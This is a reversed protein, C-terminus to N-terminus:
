PHSNEHGEDNDSGDVIDEFFSHNQQKVKRPYCLSVLLVASQIYKEMLHSFVRNDVNVHFNLDNFKFSYLLLGDENAIQFNKKSSPHNNLMNALDGLALNGTGVQFLAAVMHRIQNYLFSTGKIKFYHFNKDMRRVEFKLITRRFCTSNKRKKCFNSFDHEGVFLKCGQKIRDFNYNKDIFFYLYTRHICNLRADFFNPVSRIDIVQMNKLKKNIEKVYVRQIDQLTMHPHRIKLRITLANMRASVGKDTRSVRSFPQDVGSILNMDHLCDMLRNEVTNPNDKQYASGNFGMGVYSFFIIFKHTEEM